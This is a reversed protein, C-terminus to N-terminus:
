MKPPRDRSPSPSSSTEKRASNKSLCRACNPKIIGPAGCGYCFKHWETSQCSDWRHGPESCNWCPAPAANISSVEVAEVEAPGVDEASTTIESLPRSVTTVRGVSRSLEEELIEHQLVVERLQGVSPTPVFLISRQLEPRLNNRLIDILEANSLPNSLKDVLHLVDNYYSDFREKDRQKRNRIFERIKFDTRRDGYEESLQQCFTAWSFIGGQRAHFRWFWTAARDELLVSINNCLIQFDGYLNATTLASVRYVFDKVTLPDKETGKFRVPWKAMVHAVKDAPIRTSSPVSRPAPPQSNNPVSRPPLSLPHADSSSPQDVGTAMIPASTLTVPPYVSTIPRSVIARQESELRQMTLRMQALEQRLLAMGMSDEGVVESSAQTRPAGQDTDLLIVSSDFM